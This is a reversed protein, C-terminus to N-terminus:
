LFELLTQRLADRAEWFPWHGVDKFVVVRNDPLEAALARVAAVPRPDAAGHVLLVPVNFARLRQRTGPMAFFHKYDAGLERNVHDNVTPFTQELQQRFQEAIRPDAFDTSLGIQRLEAELAPDPSKLTERHQHLAVYRDRLHAPIREFRARQYQQHWDPDGALHTMGSLYIVATTRDPHELGYALALGAGFSHGAVAWREHGWHQRLAELDAVSRAMTYPPGGSSRGCARQEYRHGLVVDTLMESVPALVDTGGPGGHCWVIPSGSGETVTWLSAGDDLEVWGEGPLVTGM